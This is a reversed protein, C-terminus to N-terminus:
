NDGMEPIIFEGRFMDIQDVDLMHAISPTDMIDLEPLINMYRINVNSGEPLGNCIKWWLYEYGVPDNSGAANGMRLYVAIHHKWIAYGNFNGGQTGEWAVLMSPAPMKYIAEMLRHDAGLLYHYATIRVTPNGGSDLVTMATAVDAINQLTATVADTILSPNLM